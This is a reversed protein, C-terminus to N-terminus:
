ATVFTGEKGNKNKKWMSFILNIHKIWSISASKKKKQLHSYIKKKLNLLISYNVDKNFFQRM